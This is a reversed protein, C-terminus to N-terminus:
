SSGGLRRVIAALKGPFDSMVGDVGLELLRTMEPEDNITWVHMELGCRHAAAVTETAVLEVDSARPPIQLARAVPTYDSLRDTFCREFFDRAEGYAASTPVDPACRRIRHMVRDDEAALLVRDLAGRRALLEVVAAEIAPEAQKIEINLPVTPFAEVVELLSPVRVDRGRFPHTGEVEFRFGADYRRLDAFDLQRVTGTGDTTRELTDDHLVVVVGDRTAHVDLELIGAGDRVAREFSVLTNEPALGAAGRHGFIRPRPGSFYGDRSMVGDPM